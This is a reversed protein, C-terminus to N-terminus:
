GLVLLLFTVRSPQTTSHVPVDFYAPCGHQFDPHYVDGPCSHDEYSVRQKKLVGLHSQSLAHCVIDVLGDHRRIRM